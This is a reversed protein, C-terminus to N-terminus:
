PNYVGLQVVLDYSYGILNVTSLHEFLIAEGPAHVVAGHPSGTIHAEYDDFGYFSGYLEYFIAVGKPTDAIVHVFQDYTANKPFRLTEHAM